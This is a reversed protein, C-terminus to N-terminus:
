EIIECYELYFGHSFVHKIQGRLKIDENHKLVVARDMWRQDEFVAQTVVYPKGQRRTRLMVRIAYKIGRTDERLPALERTVEAVRGRMELWKGIYPQALGEAQAENYKDFFALLKEPAIDLPARQEANTVTGNVVPTPTSNPASQAVPSPASQAQPMSHINQRRQVAKILFECGVICIAGLAFVVVIEGVKKEHDKVEAIARIAVFAIAAYILARAVPIDGGFLANGGTGILVAAVAAVWPWRWLHSFSFRIGASLHDFVYRAVRSLLSETVESQTDVDIRSPAARSRSVRKQATPAVAEQSARYVQDVKDELAAFMAANLEDVNKFVRGAQRQEDVWQRVQPSLTSTDLQPESDERLPKRDDPMGGIVRTGTYLPLNSQESNKDNLIPTGNSDKEAIARHAKRWRKKNGKWIQSRQQPTLDPREWIQRTEPRMFEILESDSPEQNDTPKSSDAM